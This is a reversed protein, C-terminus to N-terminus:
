LGKDESPKKPAEKEGGQTAGAEQQERLSESYSKFLITILHYDLRGYLDEKLLKLEAIWRDKADRIEVWKKYLQNSVRDTEELLRSPSLSSYSFASFGPGLVNVLFSLLVFMMATALAYRQTLFPRVTPLFLDSWLSRVPRRGWTRDLIAELLHAPPELLPFHELEQRLSKVQRRLRSCAPCSRAHEEMVQRVPAELTQDMYESLLTEFRACNM